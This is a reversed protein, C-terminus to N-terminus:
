RRDFTMEGGVPPQYFGAALCLNRPTFHVNLIPTRKTPFTEMLDRTAFNDDEEKEGTAEAAGGGAAKRAFGNADTSAGAGGADEGAGSSKTALGGSSKVDWCRVTWDAGGSVLVSTEQSFALSYITATHGTMKKVRKGTGLDWLNIALDEGASALYKGDPSTAM